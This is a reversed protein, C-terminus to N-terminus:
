PKVGGFMDQARLLPSTPGLPSAVIYVPEVANGATLQIQSPLQAFKGFVPPWTEHAILQDDFYTFRAKNGRKTARVVVVGSGDDDITSTSDNDINGVNTWSLVLTKKQAESYILETNGTGPDYQLTWSVPSASGYNDGLPNTSLGSFTQAQGTFVNPGDTRDPYLGQITQRYWDTSMQGIQVKFLEVGFRSQLRYARELAQFLIGSVMAVLIMVVLVEILTFGSQAACRPKTNANM